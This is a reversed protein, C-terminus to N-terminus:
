FPHLMMIETGTPPKSFRERTAAEAQQPSAGGFKSQMFDQYAIVGSRFKDWAGGGNIDCLDSNSITKFIPM